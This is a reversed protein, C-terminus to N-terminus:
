RQLPRAVTRGAQDTSVASLRNERKFPQKRLINTLNESYSLPIKIAYKPLAPFFRFGGLAVRNQCCFRLDRFRLVPTQDVSRPKKVESESGGTPLIRCIGSGVLM